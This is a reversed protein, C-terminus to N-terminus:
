KVIKNGNEFYSLASISAASAKTKQGALLYLNAVKVKEHYDKVLNKSAKFHNIIYLIKDQLDEVPTIKLLHSAIRYHLGSKKEESILSYAVEQIRNHPFYYQDDDAQILGEVSAGM